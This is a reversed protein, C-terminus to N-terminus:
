AEHESDKESHFLCVTHPTILDILDRPERVSLLNRQCKESINNRVKNTNTVIQM